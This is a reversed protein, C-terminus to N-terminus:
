GDSYRKIMRLIKAEDIFINDYRDHRMIEDLTAWRIAANEFNRKAKETDSRFIFMKNKWTIGNRSDFIQVDFGKCLISLNAMGIGTEEKIERYAAELYGECKERKGFIFSWKGPNKVFPLQRRLLLLARGKNLVVAAVGDAIVKKYRYREM